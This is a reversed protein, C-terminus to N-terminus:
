EEGETETEATVPDERNIFDAKLIRDELWKRPAEGTLYKEIILSAIPAAMTSGYGANEVYVAIAIKPNDRPAFAVFVSHDDGHPNEATGTKGCIDLGPVQAIRATGGDPGNVTRYMGEIVPEFWVSDISTFIRQSLDTGASEDEIGKLIHPTIYYGRNAIATTMNAMQIPTVSLEGQGIALSVLQLSRWRNEGYFHDFYSAQPVNGRLENTFDGNLRDGLGFSRVHDAWVNFGSTVSGFKPHDLLDRFVHCFYTNCSIQIAGPLPQPSSHYRCRVTLRGVTYHGPCIHSTNEHIIGEELGILGNVVKFISGPPYHAMLARNFWPKLTDASLQRFNRTRVRGVLLEPNYSPASILSLIEGTSPEIAVISGIKNEMLKEGYEQIVADISLTIDNGVVAPADFKGEQYTGMIRNHVDVLFLNVGKEGSLQEEYTKEVGTIGIYDGMAYGPNDEIMQRDVEGVFGLVHAAIDKPYKRLTRIQVFFGPYKHLKEQLVAYTVSSIQKLFVSSRFMSYERAKKLEQDVYEKTIELVSCLETTDFPMLQGPVVMLDYAPENYVLLEGSRDYILGRSPYQTINRLVNSNASLKYSPDVVQLIFLRVLFFLMPLIIMAGIIFRRDSFRDKM